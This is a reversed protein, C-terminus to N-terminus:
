RDFAPTALVSGPAWDGSVFGFTSPLAGAVFTVRADDCSLGASVSCGSAGAFSVGRRAIAAAGCALEGIATSRGAVAM